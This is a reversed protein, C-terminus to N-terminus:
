PLLVTWLSLYGTRSPSTGDMTGNSIVGLSYLLVLFQLPSTSDASGLVSVPAAAVSYAGGKGLHM